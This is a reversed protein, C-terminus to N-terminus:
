DNACEKLITKFKESQIMSRYTYGNNSLNELLYEDHFMINAWGDFGFRKFVSVAICLRKLMDPKDLGPINTENLKEAVNFLYVAMNESLPKNLLITNIQPDNSYYRVIYKQKQEIPLGFPNFVYNSNVPCSEFGRYQKENASFTFLVNKEDFESRLGSTSRLEITAITEKGYYNLLYEKRWDPFKVIFAIIIIPSFWLLKYKYPLVTKLSGIQKM